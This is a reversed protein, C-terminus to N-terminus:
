AFASREDIIPGGVAAGLEYTPAGHRTTALESRVYVSDAHLDPSPQIFRVTGGESGAGFAHRAPRAAGRRAGSRVAGPLCQLVHLHHAPGTDAHRRHLHRRHLHRRDLRHRSHQHGFGRRQFQRCVDDGDRQFTVGPTLRTLDDINRLGQVDLKVQTFATASVAIDQLRESRRTATVVIEELAGAGAAADGDAGLARTSLAGPAACGSLCAGLASTRLSWGRDAITSPM